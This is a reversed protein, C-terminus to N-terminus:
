FRSIGIHPKLEETLRKIDPLAVPLRRYRGARGQQQKNYHIVGPYQPTGIYFTLEGNDVQEYTVEYGPRVHRYGHQPDPETYHTLFRTIVPKVRRERLDQISTARLTAESITYLKGAMYHHRDGRLDILEDVVRAHVYDRAEPDDVYLYQDVRGVTSDLSMRIFDLLGRIVDEEFFETTPALEVEREMLDRLLAHHDSGPALMGVFRETNGLRWYAEEQAQGEPTESYSEMADAMAQMWDFSVQWEGQENVEFPPVDIDAQAPDAIGESLEPDTPRLKDILTFLHSNLDSKIAAKLSLTNKIESAARRRRDLHDATADSILLGSVQDFLDIPEEPRTGAVVADLAEGFEISAQRRITAQEPPAMFNVFAQDDASLRPELNRM